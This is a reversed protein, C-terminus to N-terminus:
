LAEMVSQNIYALLLTTVEDEALTWPNDSWSDPDKWLWSVKGDNIMEVSCVENNNSAYSCLEELNNCINM